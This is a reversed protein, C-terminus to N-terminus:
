WRLTNVKDSDSIERCRYLSLLIALGVGIEAAGSAIAFLTYMQGAAEEPSVNLSFAVFNMNVANLMLEASILMLVLNRRALIGYLGIAFLLASLTLVYHLPIM